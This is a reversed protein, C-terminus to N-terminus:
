DPLAKICFTRIQILFEPRVPYNPELDVYTDNDIGSSSNFRTSKFKLDPNNSNM